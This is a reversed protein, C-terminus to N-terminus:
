RSKRQVGRRVFVDHVHRCWSSHRILRCRLRQCNRIHVGRPVLIRGAFVRQDDGDGHVRLRCPVTHRDADCLRVPLLQREHVRVRWCLEGIHVRRRGCRHWLVRARVARQERIRLWISLLLGRDRVGRATDCRRRLYVRRHLASRHVCEIRPRLLIRRRMHVVRRM